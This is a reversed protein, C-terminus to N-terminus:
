LRVIKKARVARIKENARQIDGIKEDLTKLTLDSDPIGKQGNQVLEMKLDVLNNLALNYVNQISDLSIQTMANALETNVRSWDIQDYALRLNDGMKDWDAKNLAKKHEMRIKEKELSTMADAITVELAKWHSEEMLKKSANLAAEVQSEQEKNLDPKVVETGSVFRYASPDYAPYVNAETAPAPASAVASGNEDEVQSSANAAKISENTAPVLDVASTEVTAPREARVLPYNDTNETLFVFPTSLQSMFGEGSAANGPRSMILLANLGIFCLLAAFVGALKSFSFVPKKELGLISEIRGLLQNKRGGAAAVALMRGGDQSSRELALLAMAYGKPEYQFQMVLEDCSREREREIINAFAKVFPNFYLITQMFRIVLNLLYDFRRIHSLEHLLVAEIQDTSLHNVAAVPLLIVPKLYGITVPSTVFESMWVQVPKVIGMRAGVKQVFMRWQVNAKTLGYHRIVQVYRYNRIFNLVPLTLLCLYLLSAVPLSATLWRNLQASSDANIFLSYGASAPGVSLILFFNLVFWAFGAFLLSTALMSKQSSRSLRFVATVIQYIVWLLAMQWLSNLVAWGLAQLFDSQSIANM